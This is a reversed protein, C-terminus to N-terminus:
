PTTIDCSRSLTVRLVTNKDRASRDIECCRVRATLRIENPAAINGNFLRDAILSAHSRFESTERLVNEHQLVVLTQRCAKERINGARQIRSKREGSLGESDTKERVWIRKL